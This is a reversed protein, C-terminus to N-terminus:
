GKDIDTAITLLDNAAATRGVLQARLETVHRLVAMLKADATERDERTVFSRNFKEPDTHLIKGVGTIFGLQPATSTKRGQAKAVNSQRRATQTFEEIFLVADAESIKLADRIARVFEKIAAGAPVNYTVVVKVAMEFLVLNGISNLEVKSTSSINDWVRRSIGCRDANADAALIKQYSKIDSVRVALLEAAKDLSFGMQSFLHEAQIIRWGKDVNAGNRTNASTTMAVVLESATTAAIVYCKMHTAEHKVAAAHRNVGDLFVFGNPTPYVVGAPFIAGNNMAITYTDVAEPVLATARAQNRRSDKMNFDGIAIDVPGDWQVEFSDLWAETKTDASFPNVQITRTAM